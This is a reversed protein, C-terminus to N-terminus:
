QCDRLGIVWRLRRKKSLTALHRLPKEHTRVQLLNTRCTPTWARTNRRKPHKGKQPRAHGQKCTAQVIQVNSALSAVSRVLNPPAPNEESECDIALRGTTGASSETGSRSLMEDSAPFTLPHCAFMERLRRPTRAKSLCVSEFEALMLSTQCTSTQHGERAAYRATRRGCLAQQPPWQAGLGWAM